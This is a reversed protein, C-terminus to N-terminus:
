VKCLLTFCLFLFNYLTNRFYLPAVELEAVAKPNNTKSEREWTNRNIYDYFNDRKFYINKLSTPLMPNLNFYM